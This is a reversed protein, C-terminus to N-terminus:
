DGKLARAVVSEAKAAVSGAKDFLSERINKLAYLSSTVPNWIGHLAQVPLGLLGYKERAERSSRSINRIENEIGPGLAGLYGVHGAQYAPNSLPSTAMSLLDGGVAWPLGIPGFAWRGAEGLSMPAAGTVKSLGKSLLWPAAVTTAGAFGLEGPSVPAWSGAPIREQTTAKELAPQYQGLQALQMRFFDRSQRPQISGSSVAESTRTLAEREVARGIQERPLEGSLAARYIDVPLRACKILARKKLRADFADM